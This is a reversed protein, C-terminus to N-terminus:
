WKIEKWPQITSNGLFGSAGERFNHFYLDGQVDLTEVLSRFSSEMCHIQHAEEFLKCFHFINESMDNRIIKCDGALEKIKEEPIKFGRSADDHVFVYKGGEPNLKKCLREEEEPEREFYFDDFRRNFKLGMLKYFIEACGMNLAKEQGWPYNNHGVVVLRKINTKNVFDMVEQPEDEGPIEIVEIKPEDRFMFRIMDSYKSKAFVGVKDYRYENLYIRAMANCDIHDGLGLHHYIYVSNDDNKIRELLAHEHEIVTKDDQDFVKGVFEAGVRKTPFNRGAGGFFPDHIMMDEPQLQPMIKKAFFEYDTGYKDQGGWESILQAMNPVAASKAGWMGGLVPYGHFPHDRMIHFTRDSELWEQVAAAERHNLRSDCDRSIIVEVGPEGAPEFRWFMGRWDGWDPKNVVEVHDHTRLANEIHKPVSAGLYFRCKWGPYIEKALEANRLAGHTYKPDQGWLSFTILKM